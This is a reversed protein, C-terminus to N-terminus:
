IKVKVFEPKLQDGVLLNTQVLDMDVNLLKATMLVARSPPSRQTWYLQPKTM